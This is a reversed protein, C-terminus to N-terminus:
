HVLGVVVEAKILQVSYQTIKTTTGNVEDLQHKQKEAFRALSCILGGLYDTVRAASVRIESICWDTAFNEGAIDLWIPRRRRDLGRHKRETSYILELRM